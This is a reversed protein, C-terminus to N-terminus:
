TAIAAAPHEADVADFDAAVSAVFNAPDAGAPGMATIATVALAIDTERAPGVIAPHHGLDPEVVIVPVIVVVVVTVLVVTVLVRVAGVAITAILRRRASQPLPHAPTALSRRM